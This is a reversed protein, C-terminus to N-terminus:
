LNEILSMSLMKGESQIVAHPCDVRNCVGICNAFDKEEHTFLSVFNGGCSCNSFVPFSVGCEPCCLELTEGSVLDIDLSVRSKQGFIPSLAILGEEGNRKAKLIIGAHGDFDARKSVLNHGNPCYCEKVVLVQKKEDVDKKIPSPIIMMGKSNFIKM